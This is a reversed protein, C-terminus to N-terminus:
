RVNSVKSYVNELNDVLKRIDFKKVTRPGNGALRKALVPDGLIKSVAKNINSPNNNPITISNINDQAIEKLGPVDCVVLPRSALLAEIAVLGLGEYESPVIVVDSIKYFALLDSRNVKKKPTIISNAIDLKKVVENVKNALKKDFPDAMGTIILKADHRDQLKPMSRVAEIIGKRNAVRGPLFLIKSSGIEDLDIYKSIIKRLEHDNVEELFQKQDVGSYALLLKDKDAGLFLAQDYYNKSAVVIQEYAEMAIISKALNIDLAPEKFYGIARRGIDPTNYFTFVIPVNITDKMFSLILMPMFNNVQVVDYKKAQLAEHIEKTAKRPGSKGVAFNELGSIYEVEFNFSLNNHVQELARDTFVTVSHGRRSLEKATLYASTGSGVISPFFRSSVLCIRM